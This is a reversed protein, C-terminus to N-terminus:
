KFSLLNVIHNVKHNIKKILCKIKYNWTSCCWHITLWAHSAISLRLFNQCLPCEFLVNAWSVRTKVMRAGQEDGRLFPNLPAFPHLIRGILCQVYSHFHLRFFSLYTQSASSSVIWPAGSLVGPTAGLPSSWYKYIYLHALLHVQNQVLLYVVPQVTASSNCKNM